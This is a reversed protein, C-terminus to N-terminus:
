PLAGEKESDDVLHQVVREMCMKRSGKVLLTIGACLQAELALLLEDLSDCHVAGDGFANVAFKSQEGLAFMREVGYERALRGSSEHLVSSQEGLEHMDGLVLWRRGAPLACLAAELSSPNANYTDDVLQVGLKGSLIKLRGSMPDCLGLGVAICKIDQGVAYACAAAALANMVNHKGPLALQVLAHQNRVHLHFRACQSVPDMEIGSAHIDAQENNMSFELQRSASSRERWYCAWPDDANIIAIGQNGLHSYIEAKASAVGALSGFGSLHAPACQTIVAVDPLVIGALYEIDGQASAGMEIVAYRHDEGLRFLTLPVGIENNMNGEAALTEAHQSLIACLMEKVTTKGNSGTVAILPLTFRQRWGHALNGMAFQVDPVQLFPLSCRPQQKQLLACSAGREEAMGMFDHGDHNEGALAAFMQGSEIKRSDIGCGMFDADRAPTPVGLLAAAESLRM